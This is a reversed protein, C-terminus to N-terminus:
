GHLKGAIVERMTSKYSFLTLAFLVYSAGSTLSALGSIASVNIMMTVAGAASLAGIIFIIVGVFGSVKDSPIGTVVTKKATNITKLKKAFFIICFISIIFVIITIVTFAIGVSKVDGKEKLMMVSSVALVATLAVSIIIAFVLEIISMVKIITLGATSTKGENKSMASAVILGLAILVIISPINTSIASPLFYNGANDIFDNIETMDSKDFKLDDGFEELANSVSDSVYDPIDSSFSNVISFVISLALLLVAILFLPSRAAKKYASIAPNQGASFSGEKVHYPPMQDAPIAEHTVPPSQAAQPSEPQSTIPREPGVATEDAIKAGCSHCFKENEDIEQGCNPCYKM